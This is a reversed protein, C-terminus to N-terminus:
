DNLKLYTDICDSLYEVTKYKGIDSPKIWAYNQHDEPNLIIQPNSVKAWFILAVFQKNKEIDVNSRHFFLKPNTIEIGAEEKTERIAGSEPDEGDELTGGPIDWYEPLVDDTKSRQLILIEGTDNIILTHIILGKQM